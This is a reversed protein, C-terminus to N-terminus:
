QEIIAAGTWHSTSSIGFPDCGALTGGIPYVLLTARKLALLSERVAHREKSGFHSPKKGIARIM